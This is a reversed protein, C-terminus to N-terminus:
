FVGSASRQLRSAFGFVFPAVNRGVMVLLVLPVFGLGLALPTLFLCIVSVIAAITATRLWLRAPMVIRVLRVPRLRRSALLRGAAVLVVWGLGFTGFSLLVGTVFLSSVGTVVYREVAQATLDRYARYGFTWLEAAAVILVSAALISFAPTPTARRGAITPAYIEIVALGVLVMPPVLWEYVQIPAGTPVAWELRAAADDEV